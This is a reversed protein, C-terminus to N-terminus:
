ASRKAKEKRVAAIEAEIERSSLKSKGSRKAQAQLL